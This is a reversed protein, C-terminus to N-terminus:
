VRLVNFHKLVQDSGRHALRESFGLIEHFFFHGLKSGAHAERGPQKLAPYSMSRSACSLVANFSCSCDDLVNDCVLFSPFAPACAASTEPLTRPLATSANMFSGPMPLFLASRRAKATRPMVCLSAAPIACAMRSRLLLVRYQVIHLLIVSSSVHLMQRSPFRSLVQIQTTSSGLLMRIRSFLPM